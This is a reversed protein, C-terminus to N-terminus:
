VYLGILQPSIEEKGPKNKIFQEYGKNIDEMNIHKRLDNSKGYLRRGHCVKIYSFLLEIDRGYYQFSKHKGKFWSLLKKDEISVKWNNENIKKLFIEKLESYDYKDLYFRWIFRSNLGKNAKFFTNDLEDKYGAIIVMLEDKHKSLAECLTDICERTFSDGEFNNALSYAEDIFLCGGLTEQIVNSTKIATQGLYGAVLDSRNVKKFINNKLIGIKSYMKGLITAIETKGTGPPGSLVTHMFDSETNVHLRQIFYLIQNLIQCKFDHLGIMSNLQTLEEKINILAKLDVNYETDESYETQEVINLLDSISEINVEITATKTKQIIKHPESKIKIPIKTQFLNDSLLGKAFPNSMKVPDFLQNNISHNSMEGSFSEKSFGQQIFHYDTLKIVNMYDNYQFNRRKQESDLIEIFKSPLM